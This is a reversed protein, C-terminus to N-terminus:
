ILIMGKMIDTYLRDEVSLHDLWVIDSGWDSALQIQESIENRAEKSFDTIGVAFDIDSDKNCAMSISSGFLRLSAVRLDGRLCTLVKKVALQKTPYIRSMDVFDDSVIVPFHVVANKRDNLCQAYASIRRDSASKNHTDIDISISTGALIDEVSYGLAHSLRLLTEGKASYLSKHGQEYDQLSRLNVGSITALDVQRLGALERMESLKM